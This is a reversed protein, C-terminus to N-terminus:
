YLILEPSHRKIDNNCKIAFSTPSDLEIWKQTRNALYQQYKTSFEPPFYELLNKRSDFYSFNFSVNLVNNVITSIDCYDSPLQQIIIDDNRVWMTGYYCDERLCVTLIKPFQTKINMSSITNLTKRYNRNITKANASQPDIKYPAVIYALDSLGAFYQILRRFHPSAGYMYRVANRLQKQYQYPNSIYQTINDKSYLTFVPTDTNNNLDRLILRNEIGSFTGPVRIFGDLPIDNAARKVVKKKGGTNQQEM